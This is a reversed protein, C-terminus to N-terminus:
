NPVFFLWGNCSPHGQQLLHILIVLGLTNEAAQQSYPSHTSWELHLMWVVRSAPEPFMM